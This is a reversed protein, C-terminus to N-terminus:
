FVLFIGLAFHALRFASKAALMITLVHVSLLFFYGFYFFAFWETTVPTVLKDWALSPEVHFVRLDFAFLDADVTRESVAPLIHRLQFYSFFVTLWVTLRYLLSSAFTGPKLVEGRTLALGFALCTVDTGILALSHERGPGSGCLVAITMLTFYVS